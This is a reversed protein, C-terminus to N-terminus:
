WFTVGKAFLWIGSVLYWIVKALLGRPARKAVPPANLCIVKLWIVKAKALLGRPARKAVPPANLRGYPFGKPSCVVLYGQGFPWAHANLGM